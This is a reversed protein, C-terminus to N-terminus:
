FYIEGTERGFFFTCHLPFYTYQDPTFWKPVIINMPLWLSVFSSIVRLNIYSHSIYCTLIINMIHVLIFICIHRLAIFLTNDKDVYASAKPEFFTTSTSKYSPLIFTLIVKYVQHIDNIISANQQTVNRQTQLKKGRSGMFFVINVERQRIVHSHM